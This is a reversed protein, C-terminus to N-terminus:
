SCLNRFHLTVPHIDIYNILHTRDVRCQTGAASGSKLPKEINNMENNLIARLMRIVFNAFKEGGEPSLDKDLLQLVVEFSPEVVNQLVAFVGESITVKREGEGIRLCNNSTLAAYKGLYKRVNVKYLEIISETLGRLLEDIVDTKSEERPLSTGTLPSTAHLSVSVQRVSKLDTSITMFDALFPLVYYCKELCFCRIKTLMVYGVTELVRTVLLLHNETANKLPSVMINPLTVLPNVQDHERRYVYDGFLPGLIDSHGKSDLDIGWKLIALPMPDTRSPPNLSVILRDRVKEALDGGTLFRSTSQLMDIWVTEMSRAALAPICKSLPITSVLRLSAFAMTLTLTLIANESNSIGLLDKEVGEEKKNGKEPTKTTSLTLRKNEEKEVLALLPSLYLSMGIVEKARAVFVLRYLMLEESPIPTGKKSTYSLRWTICQILMKTWHFLRQQHLYSPFSGLRKECDRILEQKLLTVSDLRSKSKPSFIKGVGENNCSSEAVTDGDDSCNEQGKTSGRERLVMSESNGDDRRCLTSSKVTEPLDGLYSFVERWYFIHSVTSRCFVFYQKWHKLLELPIPRVDSSGTTNSNCKKQQQDLLKWLTRTQEYPDKDTGFSYAELPLM